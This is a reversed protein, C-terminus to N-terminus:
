HVGTAKIRCPVQPHPHAGEKRHATIYLAVLFALTFRHMHGTSLIQNQWLAVVAEGQPPLSTIPVAIGVQGCRSLCAPQLLSTTLRGRATTAPGAVVSPQRTLYPGPLSPPSWGVEWWMEVEETTLNGKNLTQEPYNNVSLINKHERQLWLSNDTPASRM